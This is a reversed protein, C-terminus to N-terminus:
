DAKQTLVLKRIQLTSPATSVSYDDIRFLAETDGPFVFYADIPTWPADADLRASWNALHAGVGSKPDKVVLGISRGAGLARAELEARLRRTSGSKPLITVSSGQVTYNKLELRMGGDTNSRELSLVGSKVDGDLLTTRGEAGSWPHMVFDFGSFGKRADYLTSADSMAREYGVVAQLNGRLQEIELKTQEMRLTSEEIDQKTKEIQQKTQELNVRNQDRRLWQVFGASSIGGVIGFVASITAAEVTSDM